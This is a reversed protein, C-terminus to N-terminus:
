YRFTGFIWNGRDKPNTSVLFEICLENFFRIDIKKNDDKDTILAWSVERSKHDEANASNSLFDKKSISRDNDTDLISFLAEIYDSMYSLSSPWTKRGVLEVRIKECYKRFDEPTISTEHGGTKKNTIALINNIWVNLFKSFRDLEPSDQKLKKMYKYMEKFGAVDKSSVRGDNDFDLIETFYFHIKKKWFDNVEM